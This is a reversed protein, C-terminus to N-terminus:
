MGAPKVLKEGGATVAFADRRNQAWADENHGPDVPMEEGMSRVTVRSDAIGRDTLWKKAALARRMGLAMNYEDSGREDCHGTVEVMVNPNAQLVALKQELMETDTGGRINSKDFDFNIVNQLMARVEATIARERRAMEERERRIQQEEMRAREISDRRAAEVAALSDARRISDRIAASDVAPVVPEPQGGGCAAAVMVAAGFTLAIPLSLRM